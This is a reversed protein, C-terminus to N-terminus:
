DIYRLGIGYRTANEEAVERGWKVEALCISRPLGDAAMSSRMPPYRVVRMILITGPKYNHTTEIFNGGSSFNRMVGDSERTAGSSAYPRCTIAADTAMRQAVRHKAKKEM